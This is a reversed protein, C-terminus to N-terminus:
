ELMNLRKLTQSNATTKTTIQTYIITDLYMLQQQGIQQRNWVSTMETTVSVDCINSSSNKQSAAKAFFILYFLVNVDDYTCFILISIFNFFYFLKLM